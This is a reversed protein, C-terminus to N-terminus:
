WQINMIRLYNNYLLVNYKYSMAWVGATKIVGWGASSHRRMKDGQHPQLEFLLKNKGLKILYQHFFIRNILFAM